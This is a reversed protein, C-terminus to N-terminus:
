QKAIGLLRVFGTFGSLQHLALLTAEIGIDDYRDTDNCTQQVLETIRDALQKIEVQKNTTM